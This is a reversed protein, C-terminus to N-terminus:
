GGADGRVDSIRSDGLWVANVMGYLRAAFDTGVVEERRLSRSFLTQDKSFPRSAADIVMFSRQDLRYVLSVGVRDDATTGEGWAGVILDFNAGHDPRGLTWHVYYAAVPSYSEDSVYGWATRSMNGCCECPGSEQDGAEAVHFANVGPTTSTM